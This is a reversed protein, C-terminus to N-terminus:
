ADGNLINIFEQEDIIKIDLSTAKDVKGSSWGTPSVLYDLKKSVGAILGGAKKVKRELDDRDESFTGTFCFSKGAIKSTASVVLPEWINVKVRSHMADIIKANEKVGAALGKATNQGFGAISSIFAVDLCLVEFEKLTIQKNHARLIAEFRRSGFGQIDLGGFFKIIDTHSTLLTAKNLVKFKGAGFGEVHILDDHGNIGVDYFTPLDTACGAEIIADVTEGAVGKTDHERYWAMIKRIQKARSNPNTSVLYVLEEGESNKEFELLFGQEDHTPRKIKIGTPSAISVKEIAPIVDNRRSVLVQDGIKIGLEEIFRWNNLTAHTVTVGGINVPSLIARPAYRGGTDRWEIGLLETVAEEAAFKYATARDPYDWKDKKLTDVQVILGDVDWELKARDTTEYENKLKEVEALSSYPGHFAVTDFKWAKLQAIMDSNTKLGLEEWNMICYCVVNLHECGTGDHRKATGAATNRTNKGGVKVLNSKFLLIEARIVVEDKIPITKQVGKM